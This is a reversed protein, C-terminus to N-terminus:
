NRREFKWVFNEMCLLALVHVHTIEMEYSVAQVSKM